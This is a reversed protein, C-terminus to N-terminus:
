SQNQLSYNMYRICPYLNGDTGIALMLGNGGCWNHNDQPPMPRGITQTFLTCSCNEYRKDLLFWDALIMLQKHYQRAHHGEWVDEFVPNAAIDTLGIDEILWIISEALYPLNDPAITVKTARLGQERVALQINRYVTDFSGKGDPFLRCADHLEKKGDITITLSLRQRNKQIFRQVQPDDYLVGNTTMSFMYNQFQHNQKFVQYKFYDCIYDILDIQLLPEGGIFDLIVARVEGNPDIYKRITNQNLIKDVAKRAMEKDMVKNYNKGCEYCYSCRLNCDETVVFTITKVPFGQVHKFDESQNDLYRRFIDQFNKAPNHIM